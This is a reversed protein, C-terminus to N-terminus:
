AVAEALFTAYVGDHTRSLLRFGADDIMRALIWGFTSHEERVHCAVDERSYGTERTMWGIWSEVTRPIADPTCNFAVDRIYIRGGPKLADRMRTLAVSKWMDPLHHLANKTIILDLDGSAPFTLFGGLEFTINTVGMERARTRAANLMTDSVDIARVSRAMGGAACALIGTGCGIDALATERTVGLGSLLARDAALDGGQRADYTAVQVDDEFDLGVQKLDDYWWDPQTM